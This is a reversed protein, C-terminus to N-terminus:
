TTIVQESQYCQSSCTLPNVTDNIHVDDTDDGFRWLFTMNVGQGVSARFRTAVGIYVQLCRSM